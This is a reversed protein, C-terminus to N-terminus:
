EGAQPVPGDPPGPSRVIASATSRRGDNPNIPALVLDLLHRRATHCIDAPIDELRIAQLASAIAHGAQVAARELEQDIGAVM